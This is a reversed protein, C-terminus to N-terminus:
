EDDFADFDPFLRRKLWIMTGVPSYLVNREWVRMQRWPLCERFSEGCVKERGRGLQYNACIVLYHWKGTKPNRRKAAEGTGVQNKNPYGKCTFKLPWRKMRESGTLGSIAVWFMLANDLVCEGTMFLSTRIRVRLYEIRAQMGEYSLQSWPSSSKYGRMLMLWTVKLKTNYQVQPNILTMRAWNWSKGWLQSGIRWAKRPKRQGRSHPLLLNLYRSGRIEPSVEAESPPLCARDTKCVIRVAISNQVTTYLGQFARFFFRSQFRSILENQRLRTVCKLAGHIPWEWFDTSRCLSAKMVVFVQFPKQRSHLPNVHPLLGMDNNPLRYTKSESLCDKSFIMHDPMEGAPEDENAIDRIIEHYQQIICLSIAPICTEWFSLCSARTQITRCINGSRFPYRSSRRVLVQM